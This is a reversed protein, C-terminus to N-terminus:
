IGSGGSPGGAPGPTPNSGGGTNDCVREACVGPGALENCGGSVCESNTTCSAGNPGREACQQTARDCILGVDCVLGGLEGGCDSGASGDSTQECMGAVCALGDLPNCIALAAEGCTEGAVRRVAIAQCSDGTCVLDGACRVDRTCPEGAAVPARCIGREVGEAIECWSGAVCAAFSLVNGELSLEGCPQGVAADPLTRRDVCRSSTGTFYCDPTGEVGERTCERQGLCQTGLADRPACAGPCMGIDTACYGDGECEEGRYCAGGIAVTGVFAEACSGPADGAGFAGCSSQLYTLCRRAAAGDYVITGAEIAVELQPTGFPLLRDIVDGCAQENVFVARLFDTDDGTACDFAARCFAVAAERGFSDIPIPGGSGRSSPCGALALVVVLLSLIRTM